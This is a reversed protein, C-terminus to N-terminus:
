LEVCTNYHLDEIFYLLSSLFRESTCSGILLKNKDQCAPSPVFIFLTFWITKIFLVGMSVEWWNKSKFWKKRKFHMWRPLLPNLIKVYRVKIIQVNNTRDAKCRHSIMNVVSIFIKIPYYYFFNTYTQYLIESVIVFWECFM